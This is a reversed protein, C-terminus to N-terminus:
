DEADGTVVRRHAAVAGSGRPRGLVFSGLGLLLAGPGLAYGIWYTLERLASAGVFVRSGHLVPWALPGIILWAGCVAALLGAFGLISRRAPSSSRGEGMLLMGALVAAGGPALFLVSHSLNWTWSSEGDGSFGFIPGIYAVVGAWAGLLLTVFGAMEISMRYPPRVIQDDAGVTSIAM